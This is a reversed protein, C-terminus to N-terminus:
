HASAAARARGADAVCSVFECGSEERCTSFLEDMEARQADSAADYQKMSEVACVELTPMPEIEPSQQRACAIAERCDREADYANDGEEEKEIEDDDADASDGCASAAAVLLLCVLRARLQM